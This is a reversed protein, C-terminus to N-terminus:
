ASSSILTFDPPSFFHLPLRDCCCSCCSCLMVRYSPNLCLGYTRVSKEEEEEEYKLLFPYTDKVQESKFIFDSVIFRACMKHSVEKEEESLM